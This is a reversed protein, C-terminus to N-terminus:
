KEEASGRSDSALPTQISAFASPRPSASAQPALRRQWLWVWGAPDVPRPTCVVTLVGTPPTDRRM